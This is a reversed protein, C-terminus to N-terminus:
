ALTLLSAMGKFDECSLKFSSFANLFYLGLQCGRIMVSVAIANEFRLPFLGVVFSNLVCSGYRIFCSFHAM